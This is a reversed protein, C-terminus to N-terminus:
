RRDPCLPAREKTAPPPATLPSNGRLTALEQPSGLWAEMSVRFDAGVPPEGVASIIGRHRLCEPRQCGPGCTLTEEGPTPPTKQESM